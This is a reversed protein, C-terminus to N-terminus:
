FPVRTGAGELRAREVLFAASAIDQPSVGLSKYVTIEAEGRRGPRGGAIVEGIQGAIDEARFRGAAIASRIEGGQALAAPLLDVFVRGCAVVDDDAEREDPRSAGVLNVHAGPAIDAGALIPTGASTVACILDAGAIAERVTPAVEHRLGALPVLHRAAFAQAREPSRGWLRIETVPRVARMAEVHRQAQEGCGLIALIHADKRALVDTAVASAAATRVATIESADLIALLRGFAPDFLLVAGRHSSLGHALNEPSVTLVKIGLRDPPLFGPMVGLLANFGPVAMVTRLPARADAGMAATLAERMLTICTPMPLLRRIDGRGLVLIEGEPPFAASDAM